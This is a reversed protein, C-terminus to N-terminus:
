DSASRDRLKKWDGVAHQPGISAAGGTYDGMVELVYDIDNLKKLIELTLRHTSVYHTDNDYVSPVTGTTQLIHDRSKNSDTGDKTFVEITYVPASNLPDQELRSILDYVLAPDVKPFIKRYLQGLRQTEVQLEKLDAVIDQVIAL